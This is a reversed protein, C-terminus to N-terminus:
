EDTRLFDVWVQVDEASVAKGERARYYWRSVIAAFSEARIKSGSVELYDYLDKAFEEIMPGVDALSGKDLGRLLWNLDVEYISSVRNIAELPMNRKGQEYYHYARLSLGISKAFAQQTLRTEGRVLALRAGIAVLDDDKWTPKVVM